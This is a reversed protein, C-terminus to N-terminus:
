TAEGKPKRKKPPLRFVPNPDLPERGLHEFALNLAAIVFSQQDVDFDLTADKLRRWQDPPLRFMTKKRTDIKAGEDRPRTAIM